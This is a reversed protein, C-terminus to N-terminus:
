CDFKVEDFNSVLNRSATTFWLLLCYHYCTTTDGFNWWSADWLCERLFFYSSEIRSYFYSTAVSLDLLVKQHPSSIFWPIDLYSVDVYSGLCWILCDIVLYALLNIKYWVNVHYWGVKLYINSSNEEGGRSRPPSQSITSGGAGVLVKPRPTESSPASPHLAGKQLPLSLM